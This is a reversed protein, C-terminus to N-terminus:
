GVATLAKACQLLLLLLLMLLMVVTVGQFESGAIIIQTTIHLRSTHMTATSSCMLITFYTSSRRLASSLSSSMTNVSSSSSIEIVRASSFRKCDHKIGSNNNTASVLLWRTCTKTYAEANL